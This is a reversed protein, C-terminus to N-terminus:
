GHLQSQLRAENDKINQAIMEHDKPDQLKHLRAHCNPCLAATNEACEMGEYKKVSLHTIELYPEGDIEFPAEKGCMECRGNARLKAYVSLMAPTTRKQSVVTRESTPAVFKLASQFLELAPVLNKVIDVQQEAEREIFEESLYNKSNVLKLPFKCVKRMKGADDVEEAMFPEGALKVIGRYQYKGSSFMEFLYVTVGNTDSEYLTKNQFSQFDQDGNKGQGTYYLIDGKWYDEYLHDNGDQFSILVLANKTHSRRMGGMNGVKLIEVIEGNTYERGVELEQVTDERRHALFEKVEDVDFLKTRAGVTKYPLGEAILRYLTARSINLEELVVKLTVYEKPM